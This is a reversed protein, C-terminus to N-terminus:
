WEGDDIKEKVMQMIISQTETDPYRQPSSGNRMVYAFKDGRKVRIAHCNPCRESRKNITMCMPCLWERTSASEIKKVHIPGYTFHSM